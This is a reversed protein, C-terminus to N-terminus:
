YEELRVRAPLSMSVLTPLVSIRHFILFHHLSVYKCHKFSSFQAPFFLVSSFHIDDLLLTAGHASHPTKQGVTLITLFSTVVGTPFTM